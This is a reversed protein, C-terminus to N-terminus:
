TGAGGGDGGSAIASSTAATTAAVVAIMTAAQVESVTSGVAAGIADGEAIQKARRGAERRDDKPVVRKVLDYAHLLSALMAEYATPERGSVLVETMAARLRREPEPDREPYRVTEFLGLRKRREEELVGREVLRDAVRERLPDLAKRLRGLWAKADRRQEDGRVVELAERALPDAPPDCGAAVLKGDDSELCGAAVVDLLLAGALGAEVGGGWNATDAGKEDDLAVLLLAEALTLDAM